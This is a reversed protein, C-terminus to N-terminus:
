RNRREKPMQQISFYGNRHDARDTPDCPASLCEDHDTQEDKRVCLLCHRCTDKWKKGDTPCFTLQGWLASQFTNQDPAVGFLSLQESM